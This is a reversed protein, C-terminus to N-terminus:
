QASSTRSRLRENVQTEPDFRHVSPALIDVWYLRQHQPSWVPGEALHAGRPLRM